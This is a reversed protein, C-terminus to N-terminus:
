AVAKLKPRDARMEDIRDSWLQMLDCREEWYGGRDYIAQTSADEHDLQVEILAKQEAFRPLKMGNVIVREANLMTSATSRFGHACHIGKYGIRNLTENISVASIHKNRMQIADGGKGPRGPFLFRHGGTLKHLERLEALAQRSLPVEFDKGMRSSKKQKRHTRMKLTEWPVILKKADWDVHAWEAAALEGPRVWILALLRLAHRDVAAHRQRKDHGIVCRHDIDRLLKGFAKADTLAPRPEYTEAPSTFADGYSVGAFPNMKLYGAVVAYGCIAIADQQVRLRTEYTEARECKRLVEVLDLAALTSIEKGGFGANLKKISNKKAKITRNARRTEPYKADLWEQAVERFPRRAAAAEKKAAVEQRKETVPDGGAVVIERAARHRERAQALTCEDLNGFGTLREQGAVRYKYRWYCEGKPTKLLFLGGGDAYKGPEGNKQIAEVQKSTLKNLAAM